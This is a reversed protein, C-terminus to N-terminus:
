SRRATPGRSRGGRSSRAAAATAASSRATSTAASSPSPGRRPRRVRGADDAAEGPRSRGAPLAGQQLVLGVPRRHVAPRVAQQGLDVGQHAGPRDQRRVAPTSRPRHHGPVPGPSTWNPMFVVDASFLDPLGDSGAAAGVKAQYDDTPVVTLEVQNKHSANYADVLPRARAETAARTWMTIKTGDDIGQGASPSRRKGVSRGQGARLGGRVPRAASRLPLRLPAAASPSSSSGHRLRRLAPRSRGRPQCGSITGCGSVGGTSARGRSRHVTPEGARSPAAAVYCVFDLAYM